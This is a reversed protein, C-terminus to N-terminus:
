IFLNFILIEPLKLVAHSNLTVTGRTKKCFYQILKGGETGSEQTTTM